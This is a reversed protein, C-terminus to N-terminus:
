KSEEAVRGSILAVEDIIRKLEVARTKQGSADMAFPYMERRGQNIAVEDELLRAMTHVRQNYNDDGTSTQLMRFIQRATDQATGLDETQIWIGAGTYAGCLQVIVYPLGQSVRVRVASGERLLKACTMMPRPQSPPGFSM